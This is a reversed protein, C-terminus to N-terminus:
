NQVVPGLVIDLPWFTIFQGKFYYAMLKCTFYFVSINPISAESYRTPSRYNKSWKTMVKHEDRRVRGSKWSASISSNRVHNSFKKKTHSYLCSFFHAQYCICITLSYSKGRLLEERGRGLGWQFTIRKKM